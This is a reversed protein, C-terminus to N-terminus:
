CALHLPTNFAILTEEQLKKSLAKANLLHGGIFYLNDSVAYAAQHFLKLM